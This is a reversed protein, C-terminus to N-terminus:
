TTSEESLTLRYATIHKQFKITTLEYHNCKMKEYKKSTGAFAFVLLEAM